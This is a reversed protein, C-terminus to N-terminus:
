NYLLSKQETKEWIQLAAGLLWKGDTVPRAPLPRRPAFVEKLSDQHKCVFQPGIRIVDHRASVYKKLLLCM